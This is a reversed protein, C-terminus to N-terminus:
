FWNYLKRCLGQCNNGVFNYHHNCDNQLFNIVDGITKDSTKGEPWSYSYKPQTWVEADTEKDAEALGCEDCYRWSACRRIEIMGTPDIGRFHVMYWQSATEIIMWWHEVADPNGYGVTVVAKVATVAWSYSGDLIRCSRTTIKTINERKAADNLEDYKWRNVRCVGGIDAVIDGQLQASIGNGM